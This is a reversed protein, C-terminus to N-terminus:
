EGSLLHFSLGYPTGVLDKVNLLLRFVISRLEFVDLSQREFPDRKTLYRVVRGGSHQPKKATPM